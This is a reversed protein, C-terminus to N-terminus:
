FMDVPFVHAWAVGERGGESGDGGEEDDDDGGGGKLQAGIGGGWGRACSWGDIGAGIFAEAGHSFGEGVCLLEGEFGVVHGILDEGVSLLGLECAGNVDGDSAGIGEHGLDVAVEFSAM